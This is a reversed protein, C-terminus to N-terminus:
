VSFSFPPPGNERDRGPYLDLTVKNAIITDRGAIINRSRLMAYTYYTGLSIVCVYILIISSDIYNVHVHKQRPLNNGRSM